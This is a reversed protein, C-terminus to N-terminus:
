QADGPYLESYFHRTFHCNGCNFNKEADDLSVYVHRVGSCDIASFAVPKLVGANIKKGREKESDTLAGGFGELSGVIAGRAAESAWLDRTAQRDDAHMKAWADTSDEDVPKAKVTRRKATASIYKALATTKARGRLTGISDGLQRIAQARTLPKRPRGPRRAHRAKMEAQARALEVAAANHDTTNM